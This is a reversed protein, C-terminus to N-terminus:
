KTYKDLLQQMQTIAQNVDSGVVKEYHVTTTTGKSILVVVVVIVALVLLVALVAM